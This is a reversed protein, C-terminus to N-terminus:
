AASRASQSIALSETNKRAKRAALEARLAATGPDEEKKQPEIIPAPAPLTGTPTRKRLAETEPTRRLFPPIDLDDDATALM